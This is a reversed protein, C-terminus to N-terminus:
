AKVKAKAREVEGLCSAVSQDSNTHKRLTLAWVSAWWEYIYRCTPKLVWTRHQREDINSLLPRSFIYKQGKLIWQNMQQQYLPYSITGSFVFLGDEHIAISFFRVPTEWGQPLTDEIFDNQDLQGTPSSDGHIDMRINPHKLLSQNFELDRSALLDGFGTDRCWCGDLEDCGLRWQVLGM